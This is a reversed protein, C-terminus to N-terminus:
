LSSSVKIFSIIFLCASDIVLQTGHRSTMTYCFKSDSSSPRRRTDSFGNIRVTAIEKRRAHLGAVM